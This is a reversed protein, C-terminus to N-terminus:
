IILWASDRAVEDRGTRAMSFIDGSVATLLQSKVFAALQVQSSAM